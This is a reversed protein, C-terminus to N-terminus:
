SKRKAVTLLMTLHDNVESELGLQILEDITEYIDSKSGITLDSETLEQKDDWLIDTSVRYRQAIALVNDYSPKDIVKNRWKTAAQISIGTINSITSARKHPKVGRAELLKDIKDLTDM